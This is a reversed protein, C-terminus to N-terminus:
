ATRGPPVLPAPEECLMPSGIRTLGGGRREYRQAILVGAPRGVEYGEVFVAETRSSGYTLYGDWALAVCRVSADASRLQQRALAVGGVVTPDTGDDDVFRTMVRSGDAALTFAFPIFGDPTTMANQLAHDVADLALEGADRSLNTFSYSSRQAM